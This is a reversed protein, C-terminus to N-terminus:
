FPLFPNPRGFQGPGPLPIHERLRRFTPNDLIVTPDIFEIQAFETTEKLAAPIIAQIKPVPAFFLYYSGGALFVVIFLATILGFWNISRRQGEFVIAM